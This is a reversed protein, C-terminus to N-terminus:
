AFSGLKEEIVKIKALADAQKKKESAVVQEPASAVFKENNLKKEAIALSGKTYELEEQLKKIEAEVDIDNVVASGLIPLLGAAGVPSYQFPSM